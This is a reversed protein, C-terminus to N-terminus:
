VGGRFMLTLVLLFLPSLWLVPSAYWPVPGKADLHMIKIGVFWLFLCVIALVAYMAFKHLANELANGGFFYTIAYETIVSLIVFVLIALIVYKKNESIM